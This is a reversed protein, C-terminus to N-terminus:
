KYSARRGPVQGSEQQTKPADRGKFRHTPGFSHLAAIATLIKQNSAPVLARDPERAYLVDGDKEAVVLAAVRAGRLARASLAAELRATLPDAAARALCPPALCLAATFLSGALWSRRM